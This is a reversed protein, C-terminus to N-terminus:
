GLNRVVSVCPCLSFRSFLPIDTRLIDGEPYVLSTRWARQRQSNPPLGGMGAYEMEETGRHNLQPKLNM